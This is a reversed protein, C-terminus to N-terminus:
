QRSLAFLSKLSKLSLAVALNFEWDFFTLAYQDIETRQGPVQLSSQLTGRRFNRTPSSGATAWVAKATATDRSDTILGLSVPDQKTQGDGM